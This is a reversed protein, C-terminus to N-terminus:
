AECTVKSLVLAWPLGETENIPWVPQPGEGSQEGLRDTLQVQFTRLHPPISFVECREASSWPTSPSIFGGM